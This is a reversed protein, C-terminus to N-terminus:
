EPADAYRTARRREQTVAPATSPAPAAEGNGPLDGPRRHRCRGSCSRYGVNVVARRPDRAVPRLMVAAGAALVLGFLWRHRRPSITSRDLFREVAAAFREVPRRYGSAIRWTPRSSSSTTSSTRSPRTSRHSSRLAGRLVGARGPRDRRVAVVISAVVLVTLLSSAIGAGRAFGVTVIAQADAAAAVVVM